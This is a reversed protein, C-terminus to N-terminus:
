IYETMVSKNMNVRMATFQIATLSYICMSLFFGMWHAATLTAYFAFNFCVLM